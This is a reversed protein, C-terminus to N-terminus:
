KMAGYLRIFDDLSLQQARTNLAIDAKGLVAETKEKDKLYENLNNYITKRRQKFCAKVMEFFQEENELSYRHHFTFQIVISDVNPKPSFVHRSVDMVKKVDCRYHTIVSLANYDSDKERALFRQGVEKQMMVTIREIPEKAEFLKFLIPTTIYYPLNSAFVVKQGEQRKERILEDIDTELIDQLIVELNGEIERGLIEPLREDIELAIVRNARQCLFQTLAGIGPGIEFVLEDPDCIAAQAIKEVVRPEIIFNQGYNKKTFIQYKKQIERTRKITAIPQMM